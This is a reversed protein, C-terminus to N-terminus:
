SKLFFCFLLMNTENQFQVTKVVKYGKQEGETLKAPSSPSFKSNKLMNIMKSVKREQGVLKWKDSEVGM